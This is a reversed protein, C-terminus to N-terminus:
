SGSRAGGRSRDRLFRLARAQTLREADRGGDLTLDQRADIIELSAYVVEQANEARCTAPGSCLAGTEGHTRV